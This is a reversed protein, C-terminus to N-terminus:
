TYCKWAKKTTTQKRLVYDLWHQHQLIQINWMLRTYATLDCIFCKAASYWARAAKHTSSVDNIPFVPLLVAWAQQARHAGYASVITSHLQWNSSCYWHVGINPSEHLQGINSRSLWATSHQWLWQRALTVLFSIRVSIKIHAAGAQWINASDSLLLGPWARVEASSHMVPVICYLHGFWMKIRFSQLLFIAHDVLQM